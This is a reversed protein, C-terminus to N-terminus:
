HRGCLFVAANVLLWYMECKVGRKGVSYTLNELTVDLEGHASEWLAAREWPDQETSEYGVTSSTLIGRTLSTAETPLLYEEEGSVSFAIGSRRRLKTTHGYRNLFYYTSIACGLIWALLIPFSHVKDWDDSDFDDLLQESTVCESGDPWCRRGEFENVVFGVLAWRSFSLYPGWTWMWPVDSPRIIFGTFCIIFTLFLPVVTTAKQITKVTSALLVCLVMGLVQLLFTMLTFYGFCNWSQRLGVAWYTIASFTVSDILIVVFYLSSAVLLYALTSYAAAERERFFMERDHYIEPIVQLDALICYIITYFFFAFRNFADDYNHELDFFVSSLFLAMLVTRALMAPMFNERTKVLHTRRFLTNIQHVLSTPPTWKAELEEIVGPEEILIGLQIEQQYIEQMKVSVAKGLESQVYDAALVSASKGESGEDGRGSAIRLIFDAPNEHEALIFQHPSKSFYEVVSRPPGFYVLRGQSLLVVNNFLMFLDVSPQHITSLITRHDMAVKKMTEMLELAIVADLGSKGAGSPGMIAVFDGPEAIFSIEQLLIKGNRLEYCVGEVLVEVEDIEDPASPPTHYVSNTSGSDFFDENKLLSDDM